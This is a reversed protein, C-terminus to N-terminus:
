KKVLTELLSIDIFNSSKIKQDNFISITIFIHGISRKIQCDGVLFDMRKLISYLYKRILLDEHILHLYKNQDFWKSYWSKNIGLRFSIANVKQGM